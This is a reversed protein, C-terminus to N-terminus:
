SVTSLKYPLFLQCAKIKKMTFGRAFYALSNIVLMCKQYAYSPLQSIQDMV